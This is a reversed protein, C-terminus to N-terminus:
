KKKGSEPALPKAWKTDLGDIHENLSPSIHSWLPDLVVDLGERRALKAAPVFDADGTILVVRDALRKYAISAIDIGIKIDVGKQRMEYQVDNETLQSVSIQGDLLAKTPHEKIVWRSRAALEGLRLAVKRKCVLESHLETRFRYMETQSFDIAKKSIPNHAKKHLPRCDYVLIRYLEDYEKAVHARATNFVVHAVKSAMMPKGQPHRLKGYQMLFFSLDVLVAVKAM